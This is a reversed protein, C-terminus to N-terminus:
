SSQTNAPENEVRLSRPSRIVSDTDCAELATGCYHICSPDSRWWRIEKLSYILGPKIERCVGSPAIHKANLM